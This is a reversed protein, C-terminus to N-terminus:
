KTEKTMAEVVVQVPDGDKMEVSQEIARREAAQRDYRAQIQRTRDDWVRDARRSALRRARYAVDGPKFYRAEGGELFWERVATRVDEYDLDGILEHWAVATAVVDDEAMVRRELSNVFMVVKGMESLDM